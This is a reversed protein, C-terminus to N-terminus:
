ILTTCLTFKDRASSSVSFDSIHLCPREWLFSDRQRCSLLRQNHWLRKVSIMEEPVSITLLDCSNLRPLLQRGRAHWRSRTKPSKASPLHTAFLPKKHSPCRRVHPATSPQHTFFMKEHVPGPTVFPVDPVQFATSNRTTEAQARGYVPPDVTAEDFTSAATMCNLRATIVCLRM